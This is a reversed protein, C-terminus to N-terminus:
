PQHRGEGAVQHDRTQDVLARRGDRAFVKSGISLGDRDGLHPNRLHAPREPQRLNRRCGGLHPENCNFRAEVDGERGRTESADRRALRNPTWAHCKSRRPRM